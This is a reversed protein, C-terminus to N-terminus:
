YIKSKSVLLIAYVSQNEPTNHWYSFILVSEMCMYLSAADSDKGM